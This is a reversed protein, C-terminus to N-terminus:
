RPSSISTESSKTKSTTDHDLSVFRMLDELEWTTVPLPNTKPQSSSAQDLPHRLFFSDISATESDQTGCNEMNGRQISKEIDETEISGVDETEISEMEKTEVIGAPTTGTECVLASCRGIASAATARELRRHM